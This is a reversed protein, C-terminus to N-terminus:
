FSPRGEKRRKKSTSHLLLLSAVTLLLLGGATYLTTGLGGTDPLDVIPANTVTILDATTSTLITEEDGEQPIQPFNVKVATVPANSGDIYLNILEGGAYTPVFGNTDTEVIAYFDDGNLRPLDEFTHKFQNANNLEVKAVEQTVMEATEADVSVQYITVEVNKTTLDPTSIWKKEVPVDVTDVTFVLKGNNGLRHIVRYTEEPAEEDERCDTSYTATGTTNNAKPDNHAHYGIGVNDNTNQDHYFPNEKSPLLYTQAGPIVNNTTKGFANTYYVLEGGTKALDLVDQQAEETLGVQYILRVPLAEYYYQEGILEPTYTPLVADPVYLVVTEAGNENKTKTVTITSLDAERGDIYPDIYKGKYTYTTVNGDVTISGTTADVEGTEPDVEIEYNRGNYRLVPIGKVEMGAGINDHITVSSNRYLVFGYPTESQSSSIISTFIETLEDASLKGFYSADAYSYNNAYPNTRLIPLYGHPVGTWPDPWSAQTRAAQADSGSRMLSQFLNAVAATTTNISSTANNINDPTPNLVARKYADGTGQGSAGNFSTDSDWNKDNPNDPNKETKIGMGITYFMATKKYHIGAMRKFYNASLVTYYGQAGSVNRESASSKPDGNGSGYHPGNLPDMYNNTAITPEGDSLLIIVPQRIIKVTSEAETGENVKVTYTTDKNAELINYGVQIGAQTYTGIGQYIKSDVGDVLGRKGAGSYSKNNETTSKLSESGVLFQRVASNFNMTVSELATLQMIGESNEAATYRGLPLMEWAGTSFLAVGIRNNPNEKLIKTAADNFAENLAEMRTTKNDSTTNTTMSGSVDLVFVVDIPTRVVENYAVPYEQGLASLAVSFTNPEYAEFADYDDDGYIVSKDSMVKGDIAESEAYTNKRFDSELDSTSPDSFYQGNVTVTEEVVATEGTKEGSPTIFADYDPKPPGSVTGGEDVVKNAVDKPIELSTKDSLKFILMDRSNYFSESSGLTGSGSDDRSSGYAFDGTGTHRLYNSGDAIRWCKEPTEYTLSHNQASSATLGSTGVDLYRSTGQNQFRYYNGNKTLTWRMATSDSDSITYYETNGKVSHLTVGTATTSYSTGWYSTSSEVGIAYNGEASIIMYTAGAELDSAKTVRTWFTGEQTTTTTTVAFTAIRNTQFSVGTLGKEAKELKGKIADAQFAAPEQDEAEGTEDALSNVAADSVSLTRLVLGEDNAATQIVPAATDGEPTLLFTQMGTAAKATQRDFVPEAFKVKVSVEADQPLEYVAGESVLQMGYYSADSLYQDKKNMKEVLANHMADYTAPDADATIQWVVVALDAPLDEVGKVTVDATLLEDSYTLEKGFCDKVHTHEELGCILNGAEDYCDDTHTHETLGCLYTIEVVEEAAVLCADTHAHEPIECILNGEADFCEETHAHEELGCLYPMEEVEEAAELCADTHTHEPVECVFNGQADYCLENHAHEELGCLYVIEEIELEENTKRGPLLGYGLIDPDTLKYTRYAVTDSTNGEITKVEDGSVEVVLGVHNSTGDQHTDFFILDAPKPEYQGRARFMNRATLTHVWNNCNCDLPFGELGAYDLCFSVYMACWDGYAGGYWDGYRTYGKMTEGDAEVIYNKTSENYGLQSKAIILIDEEPNGTLELKAIMADWDAKTEVDAKPNSFCILSHDHEKLKCVLTEETKSLCEKTHQHVVANTITCDVCSENHIHPAIQEKECTMVTEVVTEAREEKTCVLESVMEYCADSHAHGEKEEKGCGLVQEYCAGTHAHGPDEPTECKLTKKQTYCGDGHTHSPKEEQQCKLTKEESYCSADHRHAAVEAKGCQLTKVEKYCDAGHSHAPEEELGCGLSQTEIYCSADHSHAAKEKKECTLKKEKSYCDSGHRHGESEEKDCILNGDADYCDAGHAHGKSEKKECTLKESVTYCSDGHSHGKTEEKNCALQTKSVYCSDSHSHGKTEKKKCSLKSESTYCADSHAHGETEEKGCSLKTTSDYCADGHSHGETEEKTCTLESSIDYCSDGHTHGERETETCLLNEGPVYCGDGHAHGEEEPVECLLTGRVLAYCDEGHAHAEHTVQTYCGEDHVHGALEKLACILTEGDYCFEDHAHIVPLDTGGTPDCVTITQQAYCKDKHAHAEIGCFAEKEMTIAPLILAYTTCFVVVCAMVSLVNRWIRKQQRRRRYQQARANRAEQMMM